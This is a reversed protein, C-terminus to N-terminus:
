DGLLRVDIKSGSSQLANVLREDATLMGCGERLALAIYLCDYVSRRLRLALELTHGMLNASPHIELPSMLFRHLIEAAEDPKLLGKRHYKWIVSAFEACILDPALLRNGAVLLKVAVDAHREPIFWKVAVSADVVVTSSLPHGATM